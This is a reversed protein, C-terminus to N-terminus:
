NQFYKIQQLLFFKRKEKLTPSQIQRNDTLVNYGIETLSICSFNIHSNFYNSNFLFSNM